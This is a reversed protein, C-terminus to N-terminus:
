SNWIMSVIEFLFPLVHRIVFWCVALLAPMVILTCIKREFTPTLFSVGIWVAFATGLAVLISRGPRCGSALMYSLAYIASCIGAVFSRFAGDDYSPSGWQDWRGSIDQTCHPCHTAFASLPMQCCPCRDSLDM